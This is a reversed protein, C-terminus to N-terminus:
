QSGFRARYEPSNVFAQVMGLYNGPARNRLVDVWFEYGGDDPDRRLYEFYQALVFAPVYEAQAFEPYEILKRLVHARQLVIENAYTNCENILESRRATMDVGSNQGVNQLLADTFAPCTSNVGYKAKFNQQQVFAEAYAQKSAELDASNQLTNRDLTFQLYTPRLGLAAKIFRHLFFGTQQFEQEVFFAASAAIRREDLCAANAGCATIQGSWYDLGGQDPERNLFDHYHQRVFFRADDIPNVSSPASDNDTIKLRAVCPSGTLYGGTAQSLTLTLSEDGEVFADDTTLVDITKSSEGPAFNLKGNATTYDGVDTATENSNFYGVSAAVNINGLRTITIPIHGASEPATYQAASFSFTNASQGERPVFRAVYVADSAPTQITRTTAGGDLWSNFEYFLDCSAQSAIVGLTRTMGVVSVVSFPTTVPQGDLTLRLGAPSTALTITSTRPTVDRFVTRTAGGSDRVTLTIRYWVNPSTEGTTPITFSGNTAGSTAPIFPHAHADHHFDIRWTFASAPLQGEEPDNAAGSYNITDGARYFAGPAPTIITAVPPQNSPVSLTASNSTVSGFSNSVVVRFQAGNDANTVAAITYSSSTAGGINVGNRQWQYSLPTAGSAAVTFTVSQGANVTQSSPHINIVPHQDDVFRIKFISNSGRALYYLQGDPGVQLDVPSSIGTAFGTVSNGAPNLQRIWGGCFDAFFYQGVYASPFQNVAPNYFTGGTIACGLTDGDGHGYFFIPGTFIGTSGPGEINPWGYNLGAQGLNIEEWTNQGVDNIFMRQAGPQFAFTYPNRLGLAWIARNQGSVQTIFPNDNPITGDRNLRLIKGLLNGLSQANSAEGNEGIAVYLKGDPGFHMAGGNHITANLDNLEIVVVESNPVVTDGNATFRSVRNHRPSSTVTYYVYVFQNAAFNPDFALGLLGREGTADTTVTLFPAALLAGNKIVRLQGGQQCVFLRGDPAFAMATPEALGNTVLTEAFGSPLTAARGAACVIALM